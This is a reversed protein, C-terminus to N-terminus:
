DAQQRGVINQRYCAKSSAGNTPQQNNNSHESLLFSNMEFLIPGYSLLIREIMQTSNSIHRLPPDRM